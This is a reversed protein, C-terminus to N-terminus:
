LIGSSELIKQEVLGVDFYGSNLIFTELVKDYGTIIGIGVILFLIGLVKKFLGNPDASTKLISMVKQGAFAVLLMILSLGVSYALLNLIGGWFSAPLVTSLILFYTPSCAAFVPGLSAGLIIASLNSKKISQSFAVKEFNSKFKGNTIKSLIKTYTQPMLLSFAFFLVIAGSFYKWFEQPIEVFATSVKLVLTFLVISAALSLTIIVPRKISKDELSGGIIIPLLPLVCPALITLIGAIFSIPLLGLDM